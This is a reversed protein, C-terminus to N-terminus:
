ADHRAELLHLTISKERPKAEIRWLRPMSAAIDAAVAKAEAFDDATITIQAAM